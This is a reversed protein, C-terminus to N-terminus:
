IQRYTPVRLSLTGNSHQDLEPLCMENFAQNWINAEFASNKQLERKKLLRSVSLKRRIEAKCKELKSPKTRVILPAIKAVQLKFYVILECAAKVSEVGVTTTTPNTAVAHILALRACYGILKNYAARQFPSLDDRETEHYHANHWEIWCTGAEPTLDLCTPTEKWPIEWLQRILGDYATRAESSIVKDTWRVQVPEPWAFLLRPLFGDEKGGEDDLDSVIEPPIGGVVSWCPNPLTISIPYDSGKRDVKTPTGSYLSLYFPRDAGKGGRYQNMSKVWASLEDRYSFLGRPNEDLLAALREVTIDATWTRREPSDLKLFPEAAQRLAPSKKTGSPAVIAAWLATSETWGEKLRIARTNGIAAGAVVLAPIGVVAQAVPLSEACEETFQRLALPLTHLPFPDNLQGSGVAVDWLVSDNREVLHPQSIALGTQHEANINRPVSM